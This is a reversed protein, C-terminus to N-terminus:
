TFQFPLLLSFITNLDTLTQYLSESNEDETEIVPVNLELAKQKVYTSSINLGRGSQRDINTVVSLLKYDSKYISLLPYKCFDPNGFFVLRM